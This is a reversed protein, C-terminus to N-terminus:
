DGCLTSMPQSPLARRVSKPMAFAASRTCVVRGVLHLALERVERRLADVLPAEAGHLAVHERHRDHEPLADGAAAQEAAVLRDLRQLLHHGRRDGREAADARGNRLREVVVIRRPRERSRSRAVLGRGLEGIRELVRRAAPRVDRRGGLDRHRTSASKPSRSRTRWALM